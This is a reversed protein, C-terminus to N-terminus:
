EAAGWSMIYQAMPTVQDMTIEEIPRSDGCVQIVAEHLIAEGDTCADPLAKARDNAKGRLMAIQKETALRATGNKPATAAPQDSTAAPAATSAPAKGPEWKEILTCIQEYHGRTVEAPAFVEGGSKTGMIKAICTTVLTGADVNTVKLAKLRGGAIGFMRKQQLESITGGGGGSGASQGAAARDEPKFGPGMACKKIVEDVSIDWVEALEDPTVTVLGSLLRVGKTLLATQTSQLWDNDGVGAITKKREGQGRETDLTPRGVFEEGEVRYARINDFTMRLVASHATGYIEATKHIGHGDVIRVPGKPTVTIGFVMGIRQAGAFNFRGFIMGQQNKYLLWHIPKTAAIAAHRLVELAQVRQTAQEAAGALDLLGSGRRLQTEELIEETLTPPAHQILVPKPERM